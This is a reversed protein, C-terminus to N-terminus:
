SAKVTKVNTKEEKLDFDLTEYVDVLDEFLRSGGLVPENKKLVEYLSRLVPNKPEYVPGKKTDFYM